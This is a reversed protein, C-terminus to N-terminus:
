SAIGGTHAFNWNIFQNRRTTAHGSVVRLPIGVRGLPQPVEDSRAQDGGAIYVFPANDIDSWVVEFAVGLDMEEGADAAPAECGTEGSPGVVSGEPAGAGRALRKRDRSLLFARRVLPVQPGFCESEDVGAPGIDHHSLLNRCRNALIPEVSHESVQLADAVGAPRDNDRSTGDIRGM